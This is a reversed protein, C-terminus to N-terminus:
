GCIWRTVLYNIVLWVAPVVVIVLILVVFQIRTSRRRCLTHVAVIGLGQLLPIATPSNLFHDDSLGFAYAILTLVGVWLSYVAVVLLAIVGVVGWTAKRAKVSVTASALMLLSFLAFRVWGDTPDSVLCGQYPTTQNFIERANLDLLVCLLLASASVIFLGLGRKVLRKM